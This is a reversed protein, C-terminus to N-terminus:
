AGVEGENLRNPFGLTGSRRYVVLLVQPVVTNLGHILKRIQNTLEVKFQPQWQTLSAASRPSSAERPNEAFVQVVLNSNTPGLTVRKGQGRSPIAV